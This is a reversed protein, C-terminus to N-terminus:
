FRSTVKKHVLVVNTKKWVTTFEGQQIFSQFTLDLPKYISKGCLKLMHISIMDHFHAKNPDLNKILTGIDDSNFTIKSVFKDTKKCFNFRLDTSNSTISGQKASICNLLEAKKKKNFDTVYFLSSICPINKYNLLM